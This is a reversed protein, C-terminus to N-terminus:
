AVLYPLVQELVADEPEVALGNDIVAIADMHGIDDVVGLVGLEFTDVSLELDASHLHCLLVLRLQKPM